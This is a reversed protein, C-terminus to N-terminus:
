ADPHTECRDLLVSLLHADEEDTLSMWSACSTESYAEWARRADVPRVLYGADRAVQVLREIDEAYRDDHDDRPEIFWLPTM